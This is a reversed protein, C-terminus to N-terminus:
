SRLWILSDTLLFVTSKKGRSGIHLSNQNLLNRSDTPRDFATQGAVTREAPAAASPRSGGTKNVEMNRLRTEIRIYYMDEVLVIFKINCCLKSKNGLLSVRLHM